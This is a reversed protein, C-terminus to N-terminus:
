LCGWSVWGIIWASLVRVFGYWSFISVALHMWSPHSISYGGDSVSQTNQNHYRTSSPTTKFVLVGSVGNMAYPLLYMKAYYTYALLRRMWVLGMAVQAPDSADIGWAKFQAEHGKEDIGVDWGENKMQRAEYRADDQQEKSSGPAEYRADSPRDKSSM